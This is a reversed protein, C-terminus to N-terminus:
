RTSASAVPTFTHSVDRPQSAFGIGLLALLVVLFVATVITAVRV